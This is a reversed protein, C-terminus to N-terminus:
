ALMAVDAKPGGASRTAEGFGGNLSVFGPDDGDPLGRGAASMRSRRSEPIQFAIV